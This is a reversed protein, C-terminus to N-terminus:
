VFSSSLCSKIPSLCFDLINLFDYKVLFCILSVRNNIRQGDIVTSPGCKELFRCKNTVTSHVYIRIYHHHDINPALCLLSSEDYFWQFSIQFHRLIVRLQIDEDPTSHVHWTFRVLKWVVATDTSYIALLVTM